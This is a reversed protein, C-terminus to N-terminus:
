EDSFRRYWAETREVYKDVLNFSMSRKAAIDVLPSIMAYVNKYLPLHEGRNTDGLMPSPGARLIIGGPLEIVEIDKALANRLDKVGGFREVFLKGLITLWGVGKMADQGVAKADVPMRCIDIGRHRMSKQWAYTQSEKEAYRSCEFSFGAHGSQFPFLSCLESVFQFMEETRKLGWEPPFAMSILNAHKSKYRVSGKEGACVNFKFKPADQYVEGEKMELDLYEMPPAGPNLWTKLMGFTRKTVPKHIRMNTTAYFHLQEPPCLKLFKEFCKLVSEPIESFLANTYLTVGFTLSVLRIGEKTLDLSTPISTSSGQFDSEM